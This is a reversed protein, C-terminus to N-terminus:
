ILDNLNFFTGASKHGASVSPSVSYQESSICRYSSTMKSRMQVFNTVVTAGTRKIDKKSLVKVPLAGQKTIRNISSGAIQVRERKTENKTTKEALVDLDLAGCGLFMTQRSRSLVLKQMM